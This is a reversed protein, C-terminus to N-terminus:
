ARAGPWPAFANELNMVSRLAPYHRTLVDGM